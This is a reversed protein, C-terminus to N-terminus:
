KAPLQLLNSSNQALGKVLVPVAAVLLLVAIFLKAV